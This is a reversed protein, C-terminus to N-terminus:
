IKSRRSETRYKSPTSNFMNKFERTLYYSYSFGCENAIDAISKNSFTLLQKVKEMRKNCLAQWITMDLHKRFLSGLTSISVHAAKAINERSLHVNHFNNDICNLALLLPKPLPEAPFQAMVERLLAYAAGGIRADDPNESTIENRIGEFFNRIRDPAICKFCPLGSPFMINLLNSLLDNKEFLIFYREAKESLTLCEIDTNNLDAMVFYGDSILEQSGDPRIFQQKGSLIMFAIINPRSFGTNYKWNRYSTSHCFTQVRLCPTGLEFPTTNANYIEKFQSSEWITQM